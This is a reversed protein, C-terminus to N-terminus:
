GSLRQGTDGRTSSTPLPCSCGGRRPSAPRRLSNPRPTRCTAVHRTRLEFYAGDTCATQKALDGLYSLEGARVEFAYGSDARNRRQAMTCTISLFYRGPPLQPPAISGYANVFDSDSRVDSPM